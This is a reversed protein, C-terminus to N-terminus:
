GLLLSILIVVGGGVCVAGGDSIVQRRSVCSVLHFGFTDVIKFLFYNGHLMWIIEGTYNRETEELREKIGDNGLGRVPSTRRSTNGM